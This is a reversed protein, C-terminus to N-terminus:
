AAIACRPASTSAMLVSLRFPASDMAFLTPMLKGTRYVLLSLEMGIAYLTKSRNPSPSAEAETKMMSGSPLIVYELM